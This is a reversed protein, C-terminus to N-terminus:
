KDLDSDYNVFCAFKNALNSAHTPQFKCPEVRLLKFALDEMVQGSVFLCYFFLYSGTCVRARSTIM